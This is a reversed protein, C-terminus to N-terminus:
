RAVDAELLLDEGIQRYTLDTLSLAEKIARGPGGLPGPATRGGLLKPALFFAIRDVLGADLLAAGLEAGGEALV